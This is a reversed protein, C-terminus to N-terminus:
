NMMKPTMIHLSSLCLVATFFFLPPPHLKSPTTSQSSLLCFLSLQTTRPPYGAVTTRIWHKLKLELPSAILYFMASLHLSPLSNNKAWHFPLTVHCLLMIVDALPTAAGLLPFPPSLMLQTSTFRLPDFFSFFDVRDIWSTCISPSYKFCHHILKIKLFIHLHTRTKNM